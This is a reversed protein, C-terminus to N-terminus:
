PQTTALQNFDVKVVPLFSINGDGYAVLYYKMDEGLNMFSPDIQRVTKYTSGADISIMTKYTFTVNNFNKTTNIACDLYQASSVLASANDEKIQVSGASLEAGTLNLVHLTNADETDHLEKTGSCTTAVYMGSAGKNYHITPGNPYSIDIAGSFAFSNSNNGSVKQVETKQSIGQFTVEANTGNVLLISYTSAEDFLDHVLNDAAADPDASCGSFMVLTSGLLASAIISSLKM